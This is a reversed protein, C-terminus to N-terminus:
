KNVKGLWLLLRETNLVAQRLLRIKLKEYEIMEINYTAGNKLMFETMGFRDGGVATLPIGSSFYGYSGQKLLARDWGEIGAQDKTPSNLLPQLLDFTKLYNEVDSTYVETNSFFTENWKKQMIKSDAGNTVLVPFTQMLEKMTALGSAKLIDMPVQLDSLSIQDCPVYPLILRSKEINVKNEFGDNVSHNIWLVHPPSSADQILHVIMGAKSVLAIKNEETRPQKNEELIQSTYNVVAQNAHFSRNKEPILPRVPNYFHSFQTLKKKAIELNFYNDEQENSYTLFQEGSLERQSKAIKGVYVSTKFDFLESSLLNCQKLEELAIQTILTHEPVSFAQSRDALAVMLLCLLLKVLYRKM